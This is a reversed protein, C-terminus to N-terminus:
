HDLVPTRTNWRPLARALVRAGEVTIRGQTTAEHWALAGRHWDIFARSDATVQLATDGGPDSLCVEARGHDILLWFHRNGPQEDPFEFPVVVRGAPLHSPRAAGPVM